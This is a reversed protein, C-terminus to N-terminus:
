TDGKKITRSCAATFDDTAVTYGITTEFWPLAWQEDGITGDRLWIVQYNRYFADLATALMCTDAWFGASILTRIGLNRLLSDLRSDFFASYVHKRIYYEGPQPELEPPFSLPAPRGDHYERPDLGGERFTHDFDGGWSRRFHAGFESRALAIRPASNIAYIVPLQVSRASNLARGIREVTQYWRKGEPGNVGEIDETGQLGHYVDVLLFATQASDLSLRETAQGAPSNETAYTKLYRGDFEIM